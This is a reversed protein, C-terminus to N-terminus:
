CGVLKRDLRFWAQGLKREGVGKPGAAFIADTIRYNIGQAVFVKKSM